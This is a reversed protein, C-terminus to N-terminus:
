RPMEVARGVEGDDGAGHERRVADRRARAARDRRQRVRPGLVLAIGRGGHEADERAAAM